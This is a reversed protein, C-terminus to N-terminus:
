GPQQRLLEPLRAIGNAIVRAQDKMPRRMSHARSRDESFYVFAMVRQAEDEVAFSEMHEIVRWRGSLEM